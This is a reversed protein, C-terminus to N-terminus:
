TMRRMGLAEMALLQDMTLKPGSIRLAQADPDVQPAIAQAGPNAELIEDLEPSGDEATGVPMWEVM